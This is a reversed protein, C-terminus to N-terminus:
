LIENHLANYLTTDDTPVDHYYKTIYESEKDRKLESPFLAIREHVIDPSPTPNIDEGLHKALMAALNGGCLHSLHTTPTPRPNCEIFYPTGEKDIMFDFGAFGTFNSEKIIKKAADNISDNNIVRIVCSPGTKAPYCIENIHTYSSLVEGNSAFINHSCTEGDIYDQISIDEKHTFVPFALAQKIGEKIIDLTNGKRLNSKFENYGEMLEEENQCIKVGWGSVGHDRKLVIPYNRSKMGKELEEQSNVILNNPTNIGLQKALKQLNSKNVLLNYSDAESLKPQIDKIIKRVPVLFKANKQILQSLYLVEQDGGPIIFDFNNKRLLKFFTNRYDLQSKFNVLVDIFSTKALFSDDPCLATIHFGVDHLAKPLRSIGIWKSTYSFILIKKM